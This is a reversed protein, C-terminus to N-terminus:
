EKIKMEMKKGNPIKSRGVEVGDGKADNGCM